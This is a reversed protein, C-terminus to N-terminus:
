GNNGEGTSQSGPLASALIVLMSAPLSSDNRISRGEGAPIVCSDLAKLVVDGGATTLTIEGSLVVYVKETPGADWQAGGDPLFHSLGVWFHEVHTADLGQLRLSRMDFHRAADYRAAAHLRKVEM